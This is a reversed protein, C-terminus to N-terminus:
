KKIYGIAVSGKGSHIATASSVVSVYEPEKGIVDIFIQKYEELLNQNLCHILAYSDIENKELDKKVYNVIKKTIGKQSLAFGFASGKGTESLTMIPRIKFFMGIKGI